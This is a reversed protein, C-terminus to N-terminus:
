GKNEFINLRRGAAPCSRGRRPSASSSGPATQSAPRAPAPRAPGTRSTPLNMVQITQNYKLRLSRKLNPKSASSASSWYALHTLYKFISQIQLQLRQRLHGGRQCQIHQVLVGPPDTLQNSNSKFNSSCLANQCQPICDLHLCAHMSALYGILPYTSM